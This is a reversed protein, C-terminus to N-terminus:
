KGRGETILDHLTVELVAALRLLENISWSSPDEARRYWTALSVGVRRAIDEARLGTRAVEARVNRSISRAIDEGREPRPEPRLPPLSSRESTTVAAPTCPLRGLATLVEGEPVDMYESRSGRTGFQRLIARENEV